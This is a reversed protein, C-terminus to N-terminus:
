VTTPIRLVNAFSFWGRADRLVGTLEPRVEWAVGHTYLPSLAYDALLLEEADHLCGMRATGDAASAIIAMLTDYATNQYAIVNDASGSVWEMLFCEADNGVADLEVGALAYEGSRLATWLESETVSKAIVQVGLQVRWQECLLQAVAGSTGEDVYLFELEGLEGGSNYGAEELLKKAAACQEVYLEPDNDLLTGGATRFDEEENDPVGYPVLGEAPAATVGSLGALANRDIVMSMAQRIRVDAFLPHACNFLATHVGLEPVATWGDQAALEAIYAESAPWVVDVQGEEYLKWAETDLGAFHFTIQQPGTKRSDYYHSGLVLEMTEETYSTAWYAGNTVLATPDSWWAEATGKAAAAEKLQQVVDQRLPLTAPSTCVERLFWDYHGTLNVVLTTDNKAMVQLLSMDGSARAEEYGAVVSLLEAYPSQSLPDALRRWAYVFDTATVNRGDSWEATRLRFIFTVTGDHNEEHDVSKAMGNVVTAAGNEDVSVRMLNEYLHALVTQDAVEEAYIPDLSVPADGVCVSLALTDETEEEACGTLASMCLIIILVVAGLRKFSNM